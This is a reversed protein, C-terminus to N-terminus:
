EGGKALNPTHAVSADWVIAPEKVIRLLQIVTSKAIATNEGRSRQTSFL